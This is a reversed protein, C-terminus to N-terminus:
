TKSDLGLKEQVWEAGEEHAEEYAWDIGALIDPSYLKRGIECGDELLLLIWGDGEGSPLQEIRYSYTVM